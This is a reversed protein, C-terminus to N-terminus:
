PHPCVWIRQINAVRINLHKVYTDNFTELRAHNDGSLLYPLQLESVILFKGSLVCSSGTNHAPPSSLAKQHVSPSLQYAICISGTVSGRITYGRTVPLTTANVFLTLFSSTFPLWGKVKVLYSQGPCRRCPQAEMGRGARGWSCARLEQQRWPDTCRGVLYKNWNALWKIVHM